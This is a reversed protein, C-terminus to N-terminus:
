RTQQAVAPMGTQPDLVHVRTGFLRSAKFLAALASAKTREDATTLELYWTRASRVYTAGSAEILARQQEWRDDDPQPAGKVTISMSSNAM